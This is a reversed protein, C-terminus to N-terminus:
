REINAWTASPKGYGGPVATAGPGSGSGPGYDRGPTAINAMRAKMREAILEQSRAKWFEPFESRIGGSALYLKLAEAEDRERQALTEAEREEEIRKRHAEAEAAQRKEEAEQRKRNMEYAAQREQAARESERANQDLKAQVDAPLSYEPM